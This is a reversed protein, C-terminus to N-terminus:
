VHARGIELGDAVIKPRVKIKLKLFSKTDHQIAINLHVGELFDIQDIFTKFSEFHDAPVSLQANIGEHAVYIRGLVNLAEWHVFLHNRFLEPNGIQAYKYFSLTLRKQDANDLLASREETSLTNYLQM